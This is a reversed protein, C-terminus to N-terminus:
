SSSIIILIAFSPYAYLFRTLVIERRGSLRNTAGITYIGQCVWVSHTPVFPEEM